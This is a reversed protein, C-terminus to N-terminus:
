VRVQNERARRATSYFESRIGSECALLFNDLLSCGYISVRYCRLFMTPTTAKRFVVFKLRHCVLSCNIKAINTLTQMHKDFKRVLLLCSLAKLYFCM